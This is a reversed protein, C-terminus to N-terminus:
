NPRFQDNLREEGSEDILKLGRLPEDVYATLGEAQLTILVCERDTERGFSTEFPAVLPMSIHHPTISELKITQNQHSHHTNHEVPCNKLPFSKDQPRQLIYRTTRAM